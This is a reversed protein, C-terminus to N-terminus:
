ANGLECLFEELLKRSLQLRRFLADVVGPQSQFVALFVCSMAILHPTFLLHADTRLSTMLLAHAKGFNEGSLAVDVAITELFVHAPHVVIEFNLAGLVRKEAARIEEPLIVPLGVKEHAAAFQTAFTNLSPSDDCEENKLTVFVCALLACLAGRASLAASSVVFRKFLISATCV